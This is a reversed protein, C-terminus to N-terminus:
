PKQGSKALIGALLGPRYRKKAFRAAPYIQDGVNWTVLKKVATDGGDFYGDPTTALWSEGDNLVYLSAILKEADLDWIKISGDAATAVLWQSDESFGVSPWQHILRSFTPLVEHGTSLEWIQEEKLTTSTVLYREDQSFFKGGTTGSLELSLVHRGSEMEWVDIPGDHGTALYHGGPSFTVSCNGSFTRELETHLDLVIIGAGSSCSAVWRGDPSLVVDEGEFHHESEGSSLDWLDASHNFFSKTLLWRSDDSFAMTGVDQTRSVFSKVERGTVVEKVHVPVQAQENRARETIAVLTADPSTVWETSLPLEVRWALKDRTLADIFQRKGDRWDTIVVNGDSREIFDATTSSDYRELSPPSRFDWIHLFNRGSDALLVPGHKGNIKSIHIRLPREVNRKMEQLLSGSALDWISITTCAVALKRGDPSFALASSLSNGLARLESGSAVDWLRVAHDKRDSQCALIKRDPSFAAPNRLGVPESSIKSVEQNARADRIDINSDSDQLALLHGDGSTALIRRPEGEEIPMEWTVIEHKLSWTAIRADGEIILSHGDATFGFLHGKLVEYGFGQLLKGSSVDWLAIGEGSGSALWQGDSSFAVQYIEGAPAVFRRKVKGTAGDWLITFHDDSGSALLKGDPSFALSNVRATHGELKRLLRGTAVDWICIIHDMSGSALWRGDPSFAMTSVEGVPGTQVVLQPPESDAVQGACPQEWVSLIILAALFAAIAPVFSSDERDSQGLLIPMVM